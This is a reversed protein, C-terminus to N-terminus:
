ATIPAPLTRILHVSMSAGILTGMGALTPMAM